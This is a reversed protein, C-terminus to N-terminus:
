LATLVRMACAMHEITADRSELKHLTNEFASKLMDYDTQLQSLRENKIKIEQEFDNIKHSQVDAIDEWLKWKEILEDKTMHSLGENAM